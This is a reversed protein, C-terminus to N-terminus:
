QSRDPRMLEFDSIYIPRKEMQKQQAVADFNGLRPLGWNGAELPASAGVLFLGRM